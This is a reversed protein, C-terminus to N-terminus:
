ISSSCRMLRSAGHLVMRELTAPVSTGNSRVKRSIREPFSESYSESSMM